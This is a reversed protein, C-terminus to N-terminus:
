GRRVCACDRCEDRGGAYGPFEGDRDTEAGLSLLGDYQAAAGSVSQVYGIFMGTDVGTEMLILEEEDGTSSTVIVRVTEIISPDLNQDQDDVQVFVPEGTAYLSAINLPQPDTPTLM